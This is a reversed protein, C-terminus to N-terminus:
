REEWSVIEINTLSFDRPKSCVQSDILIHCRESESDAFDNQFLINLFTNERSYFLFQEWM